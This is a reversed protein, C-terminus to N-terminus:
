LTKRPRGSRPKSPFVARGALHGQRDALARALVVDGEDVRKRPEPVLVKVWGNRIWDYISNSHFGYKKAAESILIPKGVYPAMSARLEAVVHAAADLDVLEDDGDVVGYDRLQALIASPFSLVAGAAQASVCAMVMSM